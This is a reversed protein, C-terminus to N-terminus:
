PLALLWALWALPPLALAMLQAIRRGDHGLAILTLVAAAEAPTHVMYDPVAASLASAAGYGWSVAMAAVHVHHAAEIDRVEDGVACVRAPEVDLKRILSSFRAGKGFLSAGCSFGSIM